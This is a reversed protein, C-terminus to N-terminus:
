ATKFLDFTQWPVATTSQFNGQTGLFESVLQDHPKNNAGVRKSGDPVIVGQADLWESYRFLLDALPNTTM